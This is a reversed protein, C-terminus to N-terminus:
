VYKKEKYLKYFYQYVGATWGLMEQTEYELSPAVGDEHYREWLCGTKEFNEALLRMYGNALSEAESRLGYRRLAEHAFYQHPAWVNPFGWQYSPDGVDQCAYVGSKNKLTEYVFKLGKEGEGFGYFWPTFCAACVVSNRQKKVFNYDFFVGSKEDYCYRKLLTLRKQKQAAYFASKVENKDAFYESLFGEVGYLHANLDIQVYDLANHNQYRPTFDEGSEGEALFHKAKAAKEANSLDKPLSPLRTHIYDYYSALFAEDDTNGRYQNLGLETIRERMWFDYEKELGDVAKKLWIKLGNEFDGDGAKRAIDKIMLGLLPPQSAYDAGHEKVCNPVCGFKQLAYLLANVNDIALQTKGDALLGVNTFYTDWYYLVRFEGRICPPVFPYPLSFDPTHLTTKAQEWGNKVYESVSKYLM